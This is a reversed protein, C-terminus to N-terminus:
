MWGSPKIGVKVRHTEDSGNTEVHPPDGEGITTSVVDRRWAEEEDSALSCVGGTGTDVGDSLSSNTTTTSFKWGM